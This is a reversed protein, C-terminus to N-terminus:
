KKDTERELDENDKGKETDRAGKHYERINSQATVDKKYIEDVEEKKQRGFGFFSKVIGTMGTSKEEEQIKPLDHQNFGLKLLAKTKCGHHKILCDILKKKMRVDKLVCDPIGYEPYLFATIYPFNGKPPKKKKGWSLCEQMERESWSGESLFEELTEMLYIKGKLLDFGRGQRLVNRLLLREIDRFNKERAIVDLLIKEIVGKTDSSSLIQNFIGEDEKLLDIVWDDEIWETLLLYQIFEIQEDAKLIAIDKLKLKKGKWVNAIFKLRYGGANVLSDSLTIKHTKPSLRNKIVVEEVAGALSPMPLNEILLNLMSELTLLNAIHQAVTQGVLEGCRKLFVDRITKQNASVFGSKVSLKEPELQVPKGELLCSLQYAEEIQDKTRIENRCHCLWNEYHTHPIFLQSTETTEKITRTELDINIQDGGSPSADKFGVIKLPSFTLNGGDFVTDWGINVKIDGPIYAILKSMLASVDESKGKLLIAPKQNGLKAFNNLLVVLKWDFESNLPPLDITINKTKEQPIELPLINGTKRNVLPSALMDERTKFVKDKVLDFLALPESVEKWLEPPFIFGHCLFIGSRGFSDRADPLNRLHLIVLYYENQIKQYFVTEKKDVKTYNTEPFYIRREIEHVEGKSMLDTPYFITHAGTKGWPSDGPSVVTHILNFVKM